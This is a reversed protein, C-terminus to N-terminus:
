KNDLNNEFVALALINPEIQRLGKGFGRLWWVLQATLNVTACIHLGNEDEWTQQDHSLPSELLSNGVTPEFILHINATPSQNHETKLTDFLPFNFGMAGQNIYDDLNFDTPLIAQNDSLEAKEFRHLAFQRIKTPKDARTAVLYIVVGRQIIALPNLVYDFAQERGRAKYSAILQKNNFLAEYVVEKADADVAPPILPQNASLIRVRELWTNAIKSEKLQRHALDFWPMLEDLVVPPLLQTLNDKVMSFAVAQSLNMHPLSQMPADDRWRWGQPNAHNKEIPFREALANLDRQITRISMEFGLIDLQEKIQNTGIWRKRELQSLIHWQRATSATTTHHSNKSMILSFITFSLWQLM